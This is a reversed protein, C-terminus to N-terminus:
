SFTPQTVYVSPVHRRKGNTSNAADELMYCIQYWSEGKCASYTHTGLCRMFTAIGVIYTGICLRPGIAILRGRNVICTLLPVFALASRLRPLQICEKYKLTVLWGDTM